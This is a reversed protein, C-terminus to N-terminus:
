DEEFSGLDDIFKELSDLRITSLECRRCDRDSRLIYLRGFVESFCVRYEKEPESSLGLPLRIRYVVHNGAGPRRLYVFTSTSEGDEGSNEKRDNLVDPNLNPKFDPNLTNLAKPSWEKVYDLYEFRKANYSCKEFDNFYPHNNWYGLYIHEVQHMGNFHYQLGYNSMEKFRFAGLQSETMKDLNIENKTRLRVTPTSYGFHETLNPFRLIENKYEFRPRQDKELILNARNLDIILRQSGKNAVKNYKKFKLNKSFNSSFHLAKVERRTLNYYVLSYRARSGLLIEKSREIVEIESNEALPGSILELNSFMVLEEFIEDYTGVLELNVINKGQARNEFAFREAGEVGIKKLFDGKLLIKKLNQNYAGYYLEYGRGELRWFRRAGLKRFKCDEMFVQYSGGKPGNWATRLGQNVEFKTKEPYPLQRSLINGMQLHLRPAQDETKPTLFSLGTRLLKTSADSGNLEYTTQLELEGRNSGSHRLSHIESVAYRALELPERLSLAVEAAARYTNAQSRCRKLVFSISNHSDVKFHRIQKNSNLKSAKAIVKSSQDDFDAKSTKTIKSLDSLEITRVSIFQQRRPRFPTFDDRKLSKLSLRNGNTKLIDFDKLLMFFLKRFKKATNQAGQADESGDGAAFIALFNDIGESAEGGSIKRILINVAKYYGEERKRWEAKSYEKMTEEYTSGIPRELFFKEFFIYVFKPLREERELVELLFEEDVKMRRLIYEPVLNEFNKYIKLKEEFSAGSSRLYCLALFIVGNSLNAEAPDNNGEKVESVKKLFKLCLRYNFMVTNENAQIKTDILHRLTGVFLSIPRNRLDPNKPNKETRIRPLQIIGNGATEVSELLETIIYYLNFFEQDLDPAEYIKYLGTFGGNLEDDDVSEEWESDILDNLDAGLEDEDAEFVEEKEESDEAGHKELPEFEESDGGYLNELCRQASKEAGSGGFITKSSFIGFVIEALFEFYKPDLNALDAEWGPEAVQSVVIDRLVELLQIFGEESAWDVASLLGVLQRGFGRLIFSNFSYPNRERQQLDYLLSVLAEKIEQSESDALLTKLLDGLGRNKSTNSMFSTLPEWFQNLNILHLSYALLNLCQHRTKQPKNWLSRFLVEVDKMTKVLSEPGEPSEEHELTDQGEQPENQDLDALIPARLNLIVRHSHKLYSELGKGQEEKPEYIFEELLAKERLERKEDLESSFFRCFLTEERLKKEEEGFNEDNQTQTEPAEPILERTNEENNPAGVGEGEGNQDELNNYGYYRGFSLYKRRKRLLGNQYVQLQGFAERVLKFQTSTAQLHNLSM